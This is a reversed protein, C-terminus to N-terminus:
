TESGMQNNKRKDERGGMNIPGITTDSCSLARGVVEARDQANAMTKGYWERGIDQYEQLKM